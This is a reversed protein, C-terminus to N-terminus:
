IEEKMSVPLEKDLNDNLTESIRKEWIQEHKMSLDPKTKASAVYLAYDCLALHYDGDIVPGFKQYSKIWGQQIHNDTREHTSWEGDPDTYSGWSQNVSSGFFNNVYQNNFDALQSPTPRSALTTGFEINSLSNDTGDDEFHVGAGNLESGLDTNLYVKGDAQPIMLIPKELGLVTYDIGTLSTSLDAKYYIDVTTTASPTKNLVLFGNTLDYFEPTGTGVTMVPYETYTGKTFDWQTKEVYKILNGDVWVGIMAKYDNPLKLANSHETSVFQYTHHSTFLSCKNSLEQEAEKLLERYLGDPADFFLSCRDTLQNWSKDM